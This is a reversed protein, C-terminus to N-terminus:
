PYTLDITNSGPVVEVTKQVKLYEAPIGSTDELVATTASETEEVVGGGGSISANHSGILAGMSSPSFM